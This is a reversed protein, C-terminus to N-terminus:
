SSFIDQFYVKKGPRPRDLVAVQFEGEKELIFM